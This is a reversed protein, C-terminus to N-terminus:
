GDPDHVAHQWARSELYAPLVGLPGLGFLPVVGTSAPAAVCLMDLVEKNILAVHRGTADQRITNERVSGPVIVPRVQALNPTTHRDAQSSWLDPPWSLRHDGRTTRSVHM